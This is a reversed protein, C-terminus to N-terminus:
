PSQDAAAVPNSLVGVGEIEISVEDGPQLFRPPRQIFGVGAPTGTAVVDGPELTTARSAYALIERVGFVMNSTSSDQVVDGNLLCRIRLRDPDIGDSAVVRPGIPGFTDLSKGRTWQQDAMQLDRASVDNLCTYGAVVSLAESESLDRARRGIVVALEAEYDVERTFSPLVIPQGPGILSSPWKAFLLPREPLAMSAEEAHDRYNLGVCIVKGPRPLPLGTNGM